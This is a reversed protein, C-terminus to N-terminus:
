GLRRSKSTEDFKRSLESDQVRVYRQSFRNRCDRLEACDAHGDWFNRSDSDASQTISNPMSFFTQRVESRNLSTTAVMAMITAAAIENEGM